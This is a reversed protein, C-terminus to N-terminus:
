LQESTNYSLSFVLRPLTYLYKCSYQSTFSSSCTFQYDQFSISRFSFSYKNAFSLVIVKSIYTLTLSNLFKNCIQTYIYM